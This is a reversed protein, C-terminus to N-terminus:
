LANFLRNQTLFNPNMDKFNLWYFSYILSIFNTKGTSLTILFALYYKKMVCLSTLISLLFLLLAFITNSFLLAYAACLYTHVIKKRVAVFHVSSM